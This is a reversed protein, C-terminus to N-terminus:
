HSYAQVDPVVGMSQSGEAVLLEGGNLGVSFSFKGDGVRYALAVFPRVHLGSGLVMSATIRGGVVVEEDWVLAADKLYLSSQASFSLGLGTLGGYPIPIDQLGLPIHYRVSLRAKADGDLGRDSFGEYLLTDDLDAKSDTVADLQMGLMQSSSFM